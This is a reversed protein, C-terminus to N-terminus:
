VATGKLCRFDATWTLSLSGTTTSFHGVGIHICWSTLDTGMTGGGSTANGTEYTDSGSTQVGSSGYSTYNSGTYHWGFTALLQDKAAAFNNTTSVGTRAINVATITPTTNLRRLGLLQGDCNAVDDTDESLVGTFVAWGDSGGASFTGGIDNIRIQIIDTAPDFDPVLTQIKITWRALNERYGDVVSAHAPNTNFTFVGGSFVSGTDSLTGPDSVAGGGQGVATIRTWPIESAGAGGVLPGGLVVYSNNVM